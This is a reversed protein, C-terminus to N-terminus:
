RNNDRSTVVSCKNREAVVCFSYLSLACQAAFLCVFACSQKTAPESSYRPVLRTPPQPHCCAFLCGRRLGTRLMATGSRITLLCPLGRTIVIFPPFKHGLYYMKKWLMRSYILYICLCLLKFGVGLQCIQFQFFFGFESPGSQCVGRTAEPKQNWWTLYFWLEHCWEYGHRNHRGPSPFFVVKM